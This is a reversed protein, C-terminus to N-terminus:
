KPAQQYDQDTDLPAVYAKIDLVPSGNLADLGVVTLINEEVSILKCVCIAIPNPRNPSRIAFVGRERDSGPPVSLLTERNARDGWYLVVIHSREKIGALAAAYAPLIEITSEQQSYKGQRPADGKEAYVSHVIGIKKLEM